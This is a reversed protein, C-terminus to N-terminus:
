QGPSCGPPRGVAVCPDVFAPLVQVFITATAINQFLDQAQFVFSDTGAFGVEPFYTLNAGPLLAPVEQIVSGTSSILTGHLPLSVITFTILPPTVGPTTIALQPELFQELNSTATTRVQLGRQSGTGALSEDVRGQISFFSRDGTLAERVESTVEFSFTGETGVPAAPVPMVVGPLERAPTQFDGDTLHGDQEGTGVFFFTPLSDVTGKVTHLLVDATELEGALGAFGSVDWEIQIRVTGNSGTGGEGDVAAAMLVPAPGPLANHEDGSGDGDADAVNGAIEAGELFAARGHLIVTRRDEATGAGPTGTLTIEVPTEEMTTVQQDDALEGFVQITATATDCVVEGEIEGCAQFLFSDTGSFGEAPTYTVAATRRPVEEGPELEGLTGHAPGSAIAFSLSTEEPANGQLVLTVPLEVGTEATVDLAEVTDVPTPPPTPDGEPNIRVVATGTSGGPDAVQFTFSDELDDGTDPTYEVTAQTRPPEPPICGPTNDPNCGPPDGPFPPPDELVPGLTGHGPFSVISFSLDDQEPDSGTLTISSPAAGDTFLEQPDAVPPQNAFASALSVRAGIGVDVDRALFAGTAVTNQRLWLTGNPVYFSAVVQTGIGLKAAKPTAGLAGSSGNIGAVYFVIDAASLGSGDNPGLVSGQDLSLKGAVRVESPADFLMSTSLGFDVEAVNYVGGSFVVTGGQNVDIIGYDGAALVASGGAPVFVDPAGPRPEADVFSPLAALVPLALVPLEAGNITGNNDLENYFVDSDIVAGNKVKIRNAKVAYGGAITVGIGVCLERECALTPGSSLDNAIVDGSLVASGQELFVSNTGLVVVEDVGAAAAPATFNASLLIVALTAPFFRSKAVGKARKM